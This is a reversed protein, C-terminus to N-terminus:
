GAPASVGDPLNCPHPTQPFHPRSAPVRLQLAVAQARLPNYSSTLWAATIFCFLSHASVPHPIKWLEPGCPPRGPPLFPSQVWLGLPTGLTQGAHCCGHATHSLLHPWSGECPSSGPGPPERAGATVAWSAGESRPGQHLEPPIDEQQWWLSPGSGFRLQPPPRTGPPISTRQPLTRRTQESAPALGRPEQGPTSHGKVRHLNWAQLPSKKGAASHLGCSSGCEGGSQSPWGPALVPSLAVRSLSSQNGAQAQGARCGGARSTGALCLMKCAPM